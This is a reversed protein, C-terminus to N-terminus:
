LSISFYSNKDEVVNTELCYLFPYVKNTAPRKNPQQMEMDNLFNEKSMVNNRQGVYDFQQSHLDGYVRKRKSNIQAVGPADRSSSIQSASGQRESSKESLELIKADQNKIHEEVKELQLRFALLDENQTDELSTLHMDQFHRSSSVGFFQNPNPVLGLGHVHGPKDAGLITNLADGKWATKGSSTDALDPRKSLIIKLEVV